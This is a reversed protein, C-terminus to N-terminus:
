AEEEMEPINDTDLVQRARWSWCHECLHLERDYVAYYRGHPHACDDCPHVIPPRTM